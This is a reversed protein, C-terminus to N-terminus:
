LNHNQLKQAIHLLHAMSPFFFMKAAYVSLDFHFTATSINELNANTEENSDKLEKKM